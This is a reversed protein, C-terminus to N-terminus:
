QLRMEWYSKAQQEAEAFTLNDLAMLAMATTQLVAAEGYEHRAEGRWVKLLVDIDLCKDTPDSNLFTKPLYFSWAEHNLSESEYFSEVSKVETKRDPRVEAEGGDGCFAVTMNDDLLKAAQQHIDDYGKHFVGHVSLNANFPNLMRALSHIPSRLGLEDRKDMLQKVQPAFDEIDLYCYGASEILAEANALSDAIPWGLAEAVPKSYLRSVENGVVGHLFVKRGNQVLLNLALLFWPLQRRKGAYSGWDIDVQCKTTPFSERIAQLFGAAEEPTEERVRILMLFAGLQMDTVQGALIMRMAARAEDQTLSRRRKQGRGITQIYFQFPKELENIEESM